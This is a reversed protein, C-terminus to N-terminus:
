VLRGSYNCVNVIFLGQDRSALLGGCCIRLMGAKDASSQM